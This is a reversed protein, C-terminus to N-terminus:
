NEFLKFIDFKTILSTVKKNHLLKIKTTSYNTLYKSTIPMTAQRTLHPITLAILAAMTAHGITRINRWNDVATFTQFVRLTMNNWISTQSKKQKFRNKLYQTSAHNVGTTFHVINNVYHRIIM